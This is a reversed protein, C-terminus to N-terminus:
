AMRRCRAILPVASATGSVLGAGLTLMVLSPVSTLEGAGLLSWLADRFAVALQIAVCGVIVSVEAIHRAATRPPRAIFGAALNSIWCFALYAATEVVLAWAVLLPDTWGEGGALAGVLGIAVLASSGVFVGMAHRRVWAANGDTAWRRLVPLRRCIWVVDGLWDHRWRAASGRPRRRRVLLVTVALAAVCTVVLGGTLVATWRNWTSAHARVIVATWEAILTIWVLAIMAGTARLMQHARDPGGPARWALLRLMVVGALMPVAFIAFSVFVDYPDDQWPSTARVTKDQSELLSLAEFLGTASLAAWIATLAARGTEDTREVATM